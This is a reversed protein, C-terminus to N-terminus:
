SPSRRSQVCSALPEFGSMEVLNHAVACLSILAQSCSAAVWASRTAHFMRCSAPLLRLAAGPFAYHLPGYRVLWLM